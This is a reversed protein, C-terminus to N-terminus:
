LIRLLFTQNYQISITFLNNPDLDLDLYFYDYRSSSMEVKKFVKDDNKKKKELLDTLAISELSLEIRKNSLENLKEEIQEITMNERKDNMKESGKIQRKCLRTTAIAVWNDLEIGKLEDVKM